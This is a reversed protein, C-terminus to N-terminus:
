SYVFKRVAKVPRAVTRYATVTQSFQANFHLCGYQHADCNSVLVGEAYFVHVEAVELDFVQVGDPALFRRRRM